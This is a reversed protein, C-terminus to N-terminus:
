RRLRTPREAHTVRPERSRQEQDATGPMPEVGPEGAEVEYDEDATVDVGDPVRVARLLVTLVATVALNALLALLGTYVTMKSDFGLQSLPYQPGGFHAKGTTANATDYLMVLGTAMGAAWGGLLAWRHAGVRWLGLVIPPLTQLILVGGILQLDISFQPDLSIIVLLAGAKVALSVVKSVTAEQQPTADPKLYERYINRAFLNAAAISMIAAPVLAGICVAAMAIGAFWDSFQKDFLLPVVTNPNGDIPQVGAAIAMYGLLALLGLALSYLPLAVMNRMVTNRSRAALLGTM